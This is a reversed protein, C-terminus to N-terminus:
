STAKAATRLCEAIDRLVKDYDSSAAREVHIRAGNVGAEQVLRKFDVQLFLEVQKPTLFAIPVNASRGTATEVKVCYPYEAHEKESIM